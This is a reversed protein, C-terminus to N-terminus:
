RGPTDFLVPLEVPARFGEGTIHVDNAEPDLRLNPLRDLLRNIAVRMEMLAIQMGLCRHPGFGFTLHPLPRRSPDFEEPQEFRSPDRNAAGLSVLIKTGAPIQEGGLETDEAAFRLSTTLPPEWRLGEELVRAMLTRDRRLAELQEPHTLLGFLTNSLARYTTELGAPLLLRMFGLIDEESLRDGDREAALLMGLLDDSPAARRAELVPLFMATLEQSARVGREFDFLVTQIEVSLEQFRELEKDSFSFGFLRAVVHAPLQFTLDHILEARGREAFRDIYQDTVPLMVESEWRALARRSFGQQVLARYRTHEPPDMSLINKGIVADATEQYGSSPFRKADRMVEAAVEYGVILFGSPDEGPRVFPPTSQSLDIRHVPGQRRLEAWLLYPDRIRGMGMARNFAEIPSEIEPTSSSTTM